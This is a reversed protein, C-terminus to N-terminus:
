GSARQGERGDQRDDNARIPSQSCWCRCHSWNSDAALRCRTRSCVLEDEVFIASPLRSAVKDFGVLAVHDALAEILASGIFGTSGTVIVVEKDSM